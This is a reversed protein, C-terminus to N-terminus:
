PRRLRRVEEKARALLRLFQQENHLQVVVVGAALRAADVDSQWHVGCVVRAQGLEHGRRLIAGQREPSIEALVLAWGWGRSAHGSPYSGNHVLWSEDHPVCTEGSTRFYAFPRIRGYHNKVPNITRAMHATVMQLLEYTAPTTGRDIRLGFSELFLEEIRAKDEADHIAQDWRASGKENKSAHFIALDHEFEPTQEPGAINPPAPLFHIADTASETVGTKKAQAFHPVTLALVIVLLCAAPNGKRM